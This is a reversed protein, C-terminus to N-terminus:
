VERGSWEALNVVVPCAGSRVVVWVVEGEGENVEQHEVGAPILAFDGEGLVQRRAGGESVIAGRGSVAYVVTDQDGHHHVASSSHPPAIMRTACIAPALNVLANQRQMGTTQDGSTTLTAARTVTVPTQTSM